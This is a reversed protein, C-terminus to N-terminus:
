VRADMSPGPPAFGFQVATTSWLDYLMILLAPGYAVLTAVLGLRFLAAVWGPVGVDVKRFYGCLWLISWVLLGVTAIGGVDQTWSMLGAPLDQYRLPDRDFFLAGFM